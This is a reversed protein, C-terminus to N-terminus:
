YGFQKKRLREADLRQLVRVIAGVAFAAFVTGERVGVIHGNLILSLVVALIVLSWDFCQKVTGFNWGTVIASIVGEGPVYLLGPLVEIFVGVAVVLSGILALVWKQWYAEPALFDTMRLSLICLLGFVVAVGVQLYGMFTFGRRLLVIQIVVLLANFIITWQGVTLNWAALAAPPTSIPTTGLDAHITLAIVLSMVAVGLLFLLWRVLLPFRDELRPTFNKM